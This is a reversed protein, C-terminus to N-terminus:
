LNESIIKLDKLFFIGIQFTKARRCFSIGAQVLWLKFTNRTILDMQALNPNPGFDPRYFRGKKQCYLGFDLTANFKSCTNCFVNKVLFHQMSSRASQVSAEVDASM